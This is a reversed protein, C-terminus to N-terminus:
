WPDDEDAEDANWRRKKPMWLALDRYQRIDDRRTARPARHKQWGYMPESDIYEDSPDGAEVYVMPRDGGDPLASRLLIYGIPTKGSAYPDAPVAPLYDPVLAILQEPWHGYDARYLQA